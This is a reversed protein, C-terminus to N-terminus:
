FRMGGTFRFSQRLTAKLKPKDIGNLEMCNRYTKIDIGGGFRAAVEECHREIAEM